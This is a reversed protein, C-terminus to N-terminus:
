RLDPRYHGDAGAQVNGEVGGQRGKAAPNNGALFFETHLNRIVSALEQAKTSWTLCMHAAHPITSMSM